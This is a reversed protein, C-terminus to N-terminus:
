KAKRVPTRRAPGAFQAVAGVDKALQELCQRTQAIAFADERPEIRFRLITVARLMSLTADYAARRKARDDPLNADQLIEKIRAQEEATAPVSSPKGAVSAVEYTARLPAPACAAVAQRLREQGSEPEAARSRACVMLALAASLLAARNASVGFEVAM